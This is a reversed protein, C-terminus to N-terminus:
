KLEKCHKANPYLGRALVTQRSSNIASMRWTMITLSSHSSVMYFCPASPKKFRSAIYLTCLYMTSGPLNNLSCTNANRAPLWASLRHWTIASSSNVSDSCLVGDCSCIRQCPLHSYTNIFCNCINPLHAMHWTEFTTSAWAQPKLLHVLVSLRLTSGTKMGGPMLQHLCGAFWRMQLLLSIQNCRRIMSIQCLSHLWKQGALLHTWLAM